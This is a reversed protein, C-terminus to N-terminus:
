IGDTKNANIFVKLSVHRRMIPLLRRQMAPQSLAPIHHKPYQDNVEWYPSLLKPLSFYQFQTYTETSFM